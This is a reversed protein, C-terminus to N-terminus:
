NPISGIGAATDIAIMMNTATAMVENRISDAAGAMMNAV